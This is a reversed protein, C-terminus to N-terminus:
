RRPWASVNGTVPAMARDTLLYINNGVRDPETRADIADSLGNLGQEAFADTLSTMDAVVAQERQRDVLVTTTWYLFAFLALVSTCFLGAYLLALRFTTTAFFRLPRPAATM